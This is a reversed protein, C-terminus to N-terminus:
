MGKTKNKKELLLRCVLHRLSQLESTHEESRPNISETAGLSQIVTDASLFRGLFPDYVRGNMHVLAVSDLMEHGTFGKRTTNGFLDSSRRTPFSHLSSHTVHEIISFLRLTFHL